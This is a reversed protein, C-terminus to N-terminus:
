QESTGEVRTDRKKGRIRKTIADEGCLNGGETRGEVPDVMLKGCKKRRQRKRCEQSRKRNKTRTDAPAAGVHGNERRKGDRASRQVDRPGNSRKCRLTNAEQRNV